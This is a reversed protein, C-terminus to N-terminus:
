LWVTLDDDPTLASKKDTWVPNHPEITVPTNICGERTWCDKADPRQHQLLVAFNQAYPRYSNKSKVLLTTKIQAELRWRDSSAGQRKLGISFDEDRRTRLSQLVSRGSTSLRALISAKFSGHTGVRYGIASLGPRNTVEIPTAQTLGECCGCASLRPELRESM